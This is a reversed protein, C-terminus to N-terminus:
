VTSPALQSLGLTDFLRQQTDDIEALTTRARPRGQRGGAPPYISTVEHIETLLRMSLKPGLPLGDLELGAHRIQREILSVIMLALTCYFAHVRLKQDTWHFAPSFSAFERDKSQRFASEGKSQARYAVIIQEDTWEHRDTFIIRKGWERAAIQEIADRDVHYGFAGAALDHEITIVDKLWRRKLIRAIRQDLAREDMRHRGREVVGKLESLERGARALTQQFGRRQKEAFRHSRSVVITRQQGYLETQTRYSLTGPIREPQHYRELGVDLLEPHQSPSLSGVIGLGLEDALPQNAKSNNGKDYVLTLQALQEASLGLAGLRAKILAIADPFQTADNRNGEYPQHCLPVNADLAVCLALGILRLDRRGGKPHGRRAITNRENASDIFTAFNTTDYILPRLEIRYRDIARGVIETEATAIAEEGLVHMADWFRQSSLAKAPCPMLRALATRGHWDGLQRKSRPRCARNIAALAILEGISPSGRAGGLARDISEALGLERAIKLAAAVAGFSRVVVAKPETAQELRREIDEVRGLYKTRVVRSRGEIWATERLYYYARGGIVKKTLSAM